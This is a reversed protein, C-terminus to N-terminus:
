PISTNFYTDANHRRVKEETSVTLKDSSILSCVQQLSLGLFEEGQVVETFHQEAYAHAQGLLQTCTHLDAFARIGLCNTPHLQSQLFECCVQRVDM